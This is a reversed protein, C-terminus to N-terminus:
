QPITPLEPKPIVLEAQDKITDFNDLNGFFDDIM